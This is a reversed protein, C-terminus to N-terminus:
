PYRNDMFFAPLHQRVMNLSELTVTVYRGHALALALRVSITPTEGHKAGVLLPSSRGASRHSVPPGHRPRTADTPDRDPFRQGTRRQEVHEPDAQAM